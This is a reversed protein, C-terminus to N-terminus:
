VLEQAYVCGGDAFTNIVRIVEQECRRVLHSPVYEMLYACYDAFRQHSGKQQVLSCSVASLDELIAGSDDQRKKKWQHNKVPSLPPSPTANCSPSDQPDKALCADGGNSPGDQLSSNSCQPVDEINSDEKRGLVDKLFFLSKFFKWKVPKGAAAEAEGTASGNKQCLLEQYNARFQDTLNKWMKKCEKQTTNMERAITEWSEDLLLRNRYEGSRRDWICPHSRVKAILREKEKVEKQRKNLRAAKMAAKADM